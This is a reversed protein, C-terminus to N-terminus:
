GGHWEPLGDAALGVRGRLGIPYRMRSKLRAIEDRHAAPVRALTRAGADMAVMVVGHMAEGDNDYVITFSEIAGEGNPATETPPVPGRRHDAETQTDPPELLHSADRPERALLLAHHKTVFEGQGYIMGRPAGARLARVMACAAHTMYNNLPGGFFSLGGTVTPEVDPGLGLTRRAMKPVVPFCSYLELKGVDGDALKEMAELVANQAPSEWYRERALWDRPESASAGGLVFVLDEEAIGAARARALSTVIVAAGQNVSPNAVMAKSYPWAILRNDATVETIAETPLRKPRWSFPNAAAIKSYRSWLEGSEAEAEAPTQGWHAASAAEYFPYVAVPWAVGLQAALPHVYDAARKLKPASLAYPTWPLAIGARKAHNVSSQAEAGCILGAQSEGRAIRLAAEHLYRVPSEGGVPGYHQRAPMIGLVACLEGATDAYRWSVLGPIDMSDVSALLGRAERDARRCAEAMLALPDLAQALDDPRDIIEGIGSIVPTREPDISGVHTM